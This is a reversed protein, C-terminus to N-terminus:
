GLEGYLKLMDDAAREWSFSLARLEGAKRLATCREKDQMLNAIAAAIAVEDYPDVLVAVDGGVEPCSSINSTIVPVGAAMSELIPLGFGEYLSPYLSIQAAHLLGPLDEDIVAGLFIVQDALEGLLPRILRSEGVLAVPVEPAAQKAALITRQLNKRPEPTGLLFIMYPKDLGYKALLVQEDSQSLRNFFHTEVGEPIVRIREEPFGMLSVLDQKTSESVAVVADVRALSAPLEKLYGQQNLKSSSFLEPHRLFTLDHVTLVTAASRVAPLVFHMGHYVDIPGTWMEIPPWALHDWMGQMLRKPANLSAVSVHELDPEWEDVQERFRNSFLVYEHEDCAAFMASALDRTYRAIGGYPRAAHYADIAIKM